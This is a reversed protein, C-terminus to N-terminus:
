SQSGKKNMMHKLANGRHRSQMLQVFKTRQDPTMVQRVELMSAFQAEEIQQRLSRIQGHKARIDDESGTGALMNELEQQAQKLAQRQQRTQDRYKTQIAQIQGVQEQSLGLEQMFPMGRPRGEQAYQTQALTQTLQPNAEALPVLSGISLGLVGVVSIRRLLMFIREEIKM